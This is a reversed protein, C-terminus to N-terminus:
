VKWGNAKAGLLHWIEAEGESMKMAKAMSEVFMVSPGRAGREMDSLYQVSYGVEKGFQALTMGKDTRYGKLMSSFTLWEGQPM